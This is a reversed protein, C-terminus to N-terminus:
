KKRCKQRQTCINESIFKTLIVTGFETM